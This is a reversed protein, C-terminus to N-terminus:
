DEEDETSIWVEMRKGEPTDFAVSYAEHKALYKKVDEANPRVPAYLDDLRQLFDEVAADVGEEETYVSPEGVPLYGACNEGVIYEM